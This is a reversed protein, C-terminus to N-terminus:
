LLRSGSIPLMLALTFTSVSLALSAMAPSIKFEAVLVPFLPQFTYLTSFTVFGAIFLALNARRYDQTDREIHSSKHNM